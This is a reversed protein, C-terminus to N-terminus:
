AEGADNAPAYRQTQERLWAAVDEESIERNALKVMYLEAEGPDAAIEVNNGALFTQMTLWSTRKNGDVFPHSSRIGYAFAAAADFLDKVQGESYLLVYTPRVLAYELANDDRLGLSGGYKEILLDHKEEVFQRSPFHLELPM